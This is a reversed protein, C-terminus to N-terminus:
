NSKLKVELSTALDSTKRDVTCLAILKCGKSSGKNKEKQVLYKKEGADEEESRRVKAVLKQRILM